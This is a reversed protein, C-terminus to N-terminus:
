AWTKILSRWSRSAPMATTTMPLSRRCSPSGTRTRSSDVGAAGGVPSPPVSPLPSSALALPSFGQGSRIAGRRLFVADERERHAPRHRDGHDDERDDHETPDREASQRDAQKGIQRIRSERHAGLIRAGCRGIDLLADGLPDLFRDGHQGTQHVVGRDRSRSDGVDEELKTPAGVERQLGALDAFAEVSSLERVVGVFGQDEAVVRREVGNQSEPQGRARSTQAFQAVEGFLLDFALELGDGSDSRHLHTATQLLLDGDLQVGVEQCQVPQVHRGHCRSELRLVDVECGAPQLFTFGLVDYAREAFEAIFYLDTIEDHELSTICRHPQSIESPDVDCGAFPVHDCSHVAPLADFDLDILLGARVHDFYRTRDLLLQEAAVILAAVGLADVASLDLVRSRLEITRAALELLAFSVERPDFALAGSDRIERKSFFTAFCRRESAKM